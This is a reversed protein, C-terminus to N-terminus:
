VDSGPNRETYYDLWKQTDASLIQRQMVLGVKELVRKSALNDPAVIGVIDPLKLVM